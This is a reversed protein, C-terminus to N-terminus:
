LRCSYVVGESSLLAEFIAVDEAAALPPAMFSAKINETLFSIKIRGEQM